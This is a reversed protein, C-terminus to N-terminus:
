LGHPFLLTGAYTAVQSGLIGTTTLRSHTQAGDVTGHAISEVSFLPFFPDDGVRMIDGAFRGALEVAGILVDDDDFLEGTFLASGHLDGELTALNLNFDLIQIAEGRLNGTLEVCIIRGRVHLIGDEDIWSIGAFIDESTQGGSVEVEEAQASATGTVMLMAAILTMGVLFNTKRYLM